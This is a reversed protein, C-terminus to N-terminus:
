SKVAGVTLGDIFNKMNFSFLILLPISALVFGAYMEGYQIRQVDRYAYLGLTVTKLAKNSSLTLMPWLFDNWSNLFSILIQSVLAPKVLPAAVCFFTQINNAGDIKASDFLENPIGEIAPRLYIIFTIQATAIYPLIVSWETGMLNLKSVLVFRPILTFIGPIMLFGLVLMYLFNKGPFNYKAFVYTAPVAVLTTGVVSLGTIYVSNKLYQLVMKASEMYNEIRIPLTIAFPYSMIEMNNKFSSIIMYYFPFFTFVVMVFLFFTILISSIKKKMKHDKM